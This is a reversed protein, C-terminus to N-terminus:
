MTILIDHWPLDVHFVSRVKLTKLFGNDSFHITSFHNSGNGNSWLPRNFTTGSWKLSQAFNSSKSAFHFVSDYGDKWIIGFKGPSYASWPLVQVNEAELFPTWIM